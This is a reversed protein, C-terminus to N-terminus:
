SEQTHKITISTLELKAAFIKLVHTSGTFHIGAFDRSAFCHRYDNRARLVVNIVGDPVGAEKFVEIIIQASFIQSDSPKWVVVNGMMAASAPLNAAIATFNFPTIAYVFGELPRYELRNWMDSTSTPQDYIQTM